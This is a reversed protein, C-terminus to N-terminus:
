RPFFKLVLQWRLYLNPITIEPFLEAQPSWLKIPQPETLSALLPSRAAITHRVQQTLQDVRWVSVHPATALSLHLLDAADLETAPAIWEPTAVDLVAMTQDDSLLHLQGQSLLTGSQWPQESRLQRASVGSMLPMYEQSAQMWLWKVQHCLELLSLSSQGLTLGLEDATRSARLVAALLDLSTMEPHSRGYESVQRSLSQQHLTQMAPALAEPNRFSLESDLTWSAPQPPSTTIAPLTDIVTTSPLEAPWVRAAPLGSSAASSLPRAM